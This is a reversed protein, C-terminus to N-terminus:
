TAPYLTLWTRGMEFFAVEPPTELRPLRLVEEYFRTARELDTVGLTVFSIRPEMPPAQRTPRHTGPSRSRTERSRGFDLRVAAAACADRVRGRLPPRTREPHASEQRLVPAPPVNRAGTFACEPRAPSPRNFQPRPRRASRESRAPQVQSPPSCTDWRSM